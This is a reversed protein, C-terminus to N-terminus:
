SRLIIGLTGIAPEFGETRMWACIELSIGVRDYSRESADLTYDQSELHARCSSALADFQTSIQSHSSSELRFIRPKHFLPAPVEDFTVGWFGSFIWLGEELNMDEGHELAIAKEVALCRTMSSTIKPRFCSDMFM